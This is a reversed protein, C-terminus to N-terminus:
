ALFDHITVALRERKGTSTVSAQESTSSHPNLTSQPYLNAPPTDLIAPLPKRTSLHPVDHGDNSYPLACETVSLDLTSPHPNSTQLTFPAPSAPPSFTELEPPSFADLETQTYSQPILPGQNKLHPAYLV